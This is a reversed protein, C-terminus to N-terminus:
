VAVVAVVRVYASKLILWTMMVYYVQYAPAQRLVYDAIGNRLQDILLIACMNRDALSDSNHLARLTRCVTRAKM